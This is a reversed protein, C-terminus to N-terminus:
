KAGKKLIMFKKCKPCKRKEKINKSMITKEFKCSKCYFVKKELKPAGPEEKEPKKQIPDKKKSQVKKESKTNKQNEAKKAESEDKKLWKDLSM